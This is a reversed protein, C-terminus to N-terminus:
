DDEALLFAALDRNRRLVDLLIPSLGRVLREHEDDDLLPKDGVNVGQVDLCAHLLEHLVTERVMSTPLKSNLIIQLQDADTQGRCEIDNCRTDDFKIRYPHPGVQVTKPPKM